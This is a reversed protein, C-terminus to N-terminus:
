EPWCVCTAAPPPWPTPPCRNMTRRTAPRSTCRRWSTPPRGASPAAEPNGIAAAINKHNWARAASGLLLLALYEFAAVLEARTSVRGPPLPWGAPSSAAARHRGGLLPVGRMRLVILVAAVVVVLGVVWLLGHGFGSFGAGPLQAAPAARPGLWGGPNAPMLNPRGLSPPTDGNRLRLSRGLSKSPVFQELKRRMQELQTNSLRLGDFNSKRLAAEFNTVSKQFGDSQLVRAAFDTKELRQVAGELLRSLPDEQDRPPETQLPKPIEPRKNNDPNNPLQDFPKRDPPQPEDPRPRKGEILDDRPQARDKFADRIAQKEDEPMNKIIDAVHQNKALKDKVAPDNINFKDLLTKYKDPHKKFDDLIHHFAKELSGANKLRENLVAPDSEFQFEAYPPPPDDNKQAWRAADFRGPRASGVGAVLLDTEHGNIGARWRRRNSFAGACELAAGSRNCAAALRRWRPWGHYFIM